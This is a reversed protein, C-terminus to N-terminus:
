VWFEANHERLVTTSDISCTNTFQQLKEDCICIPENMSLQFGRPCNQINMTVTLTNTQTPSCPGQAYLTVEQSTGVARSQITYKLTSCSNDINQIGELNSISIDNSTNTIQIVATTAVNRQGLAIVPVELTGGPYM